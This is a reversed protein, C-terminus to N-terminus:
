SFNILVSLKTSEFYAFSRYFWYLLTLRTWNSSESGLVKKRILIAIDHKYIVFLGVFWWYIVMLQEDLKRSTYLYAFSVSKTQRRQPLEPQNSNLLSKNKVRNRRFWEVCIEHKTKKIFNSYTVLRCGTLNHIKQKSFRSVRLVLSCTDCGGPRALWFIIRAYQTIIQMLCRMTYAWYTRRRAEATSLTRIEPLTYAFKFM